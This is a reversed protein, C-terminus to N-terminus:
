YRLGALWSLVDTEAGFAREGAVAIGELVTADPELAAIERYTGGDRSGAHTNFPIITKGGFDYTDFFSRMIMPLHYWWVPYGVFIVDYDEPNIDLEFAPRADQDQESKARDATEDYDVPYPDAPVIKATDAEVRGDIIEALYEVTSADGVRPTAGSVADVRDANAPSFYVILVRYGEGSEEAATATSEESATTGEPAPAAPETVTPAETPQPTAQATPTGGCSALSLMAAILLLISIGKKMIM